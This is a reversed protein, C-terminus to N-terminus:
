FYNIDCRPVEYTHLAYLDRQLLFNVPPLGAWIEVMSKNKTIQVTCRLMLILPQSAM